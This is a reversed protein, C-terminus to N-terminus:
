QERRTNWRNRLSGFNAGFNFRSTMCVVTDTGEFCDVVEEEAEPDVVFDGMVTIDIKGDVIEEEVLNLNNAMYFLILDKCDDRNRDLLMAGLPQVYEGNITVTNPDINAANFGANPDSLIVIPVWSRSGLRITNRRGPKVDVEVPICDQSIAPRISIMGVMAIILGCICIMSYLKKM